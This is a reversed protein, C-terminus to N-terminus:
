DRKEFHENKQIPTLNQSSKLLRTQNQVMHNKLDQNQISKEPEILQCRKQFLEFSNSNFLIKSWKECLGEPISPTEPGFLLQDVVQNWSFVRKVKDETVYVKLMEPLFSPLTNVIHKAWLDLIEPKNLEGREEIRRYIMRALNTGLRYANQKILYDKKESSLNENIRISFIDMPLILGNKTSLCRNDYKEKDESGEGDGSGSGLNLSTSIFCPNQNYLWGWVDALGENLATLLVLNIQKIQNTNEPLVMKNLDMKTKQNLGEQDKFEQDNTFLGEPAESGSQVYHVLAENNHPEKLDIAFLKKGQLKAEKLLPNLILRAYISHFHEHALISGNVSIPLQPSTYPVVFFSDNELVYLANNTMRNLGFSQTDFRVYVKRTVNSGPIGLNLDKEKLRELHAYLSIMEASFQTLPIVVGSRDHSYEIVVEQAALVSGNLKGHSLIKVASGRIPSWNQISRLEVKQITYDGNSLPWPVWAEHGHRDKRSNPNCSVMFLLLFCLIFSRSKILWYKISLYNKFLNKM